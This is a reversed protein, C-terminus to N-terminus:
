PNPDPTSCATEDVRWAGSTECTAQHTSADVSCNGYACYLGYPSCVDGATPLATPCQPAPPNCTTQFTKWTGDTACSAHTIPQQACTGYECEMRGPGPCATGAAPVSAPCQVPPPNCSIVTLKWTGDNQCFAETTPHGGCDGYKCKLGPEGCDGEGSAPVTQPCRLKVEPSNTAVNPPDGCGAFAFGSGIVTVVFPARLRSLRSRKTKV